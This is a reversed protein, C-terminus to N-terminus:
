RRSTRSRQNSGSHSLVPRGRSPHVWDTVVPTNATRSPPSSLSSFLSVHPGAAKHRWHWVELKTLLYEWLMQSGAKLSVSVWVCVCVCLSSLELVASAPTPIVVPAGPPLVPSSPHKRSVQLPTQGRWCLSKPRGTELDTLSYM